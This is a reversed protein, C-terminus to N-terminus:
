DSSTELFARYGKYTMYLDGKHSIEFPSHMSLVPPGCDIIEMGYVSLFKSVTGGGGADVKGLEGTQWVVGQESFLKRLWGVYEANADNAGVKGGRGMFKTLCVGYGLMAANRKEHVDQYDPDLAGNVDGSLAKSAALVRYVTRPDPRRGELVLLDQVISEILRTKAGTAGDSGTEEKDVFLVLATKESKEEGDLLARLSAFACIRDDQGYGGVLSRDWGVDRAKEAPVVELEASVFDEEVIGYRRHLHDLVALKFREKTEHDGLPIGGVLLNLKEAPIAEELKKEYQTKRALHPLLDLIAFVPDEPDEGVALDLRSGDGKVIRGHLALPRAVWHYKKVGGYYHTKMFGLDAEEYLPRQKLDLRPSDIHSVILRMGEELPSKGPRVLAICKEHLVRMMKQPPGTRPDKVYGERSAAEMICSVAERETKAWDLFDKYAEGLSFVRERDRTKLVDWVPRPRYELDEKLKEIKIKATERKKKKDV